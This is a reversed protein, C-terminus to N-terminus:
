PILFVKTNVIRNNIKHEIPEYYAIANQLPEPFLKIKSKLYQLDEISHGLSMRGEFRGKELHADGLIIGVLYKLSVKPLGYGVRLLHDEFDLNKAKKWGKPTMVKHNHTIMLKHHSSIGVKSASIQIFDKNKAPSKYWGTIPKSEIRDMSYNYSLVNVNLKNNVIEEITIESGDELMVMTSGAVCWMVRGKSPKENNNFDKGKKDVEHRSLYSFMRKVIDLSIPKRSALQRARTWGVPTGAGKTLGQEKWALAKKAKNAIVQTPIYTKM